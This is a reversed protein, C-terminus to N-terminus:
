LIKGINNIIICKPMSFAKILVFDTLGYYFNNRFGELTLKVLMKHAAKIHLSGSLAFPCKHNSHKKASKSRQKYFSNM